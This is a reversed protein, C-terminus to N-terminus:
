DEFPPDLQYELENLTGILETVSQTPRQQLTGIKFALNAFRVHAPLLLEQLYEKFGDFTFLREPDATIRRKEELWAQLAIGALQGSAYICKDEKSQYTLPKTEFVLGLQKFFDDFARQSQGLYVAPETASKACEVALHHRFSELSVDVGTFRRAARERLQQLKKEMNAIREQNKLFLIEEAMQQERSLGQGALPANSTPHKNGPATQPTTEAHKYMSANDAAVNEPRQDSPPPPDQQDDQTVEESTDLPMEAVYDRSGSEGAQNEPRFTSGSAPDELPGASQTNVM